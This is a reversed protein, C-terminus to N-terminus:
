LGWIQTKRVYGTVGDRHRVKVWGADAIELFEVVVGKALEALVASEARAEQRIEASSSIVQLTRQEALQRGEIWALGGEADRVRLWGQQRVVIEVPTQARILYLKKATKSPLDYLIAAPVAVSAYDLAVAPMALLLASWLCAYHRRRMDM